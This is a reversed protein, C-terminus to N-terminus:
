TSNKHVVATHRHLHSKKKFTSSCQTCEFPREDTHRMRIHETLGNRFPFTADCQDCFFNREKRHISRVHKNLNGREGFSLSCESCHFDRAKEHVTKKHKRVDARQTFIKHCQDCEYKERTQSRAAPVKPPASTDNLLSQIAMRNHSSKSVPMKGTREQTKSLAASSHTSYSQVQYPFVFHSPSPHSPNYMSSSSSASSNNKRM